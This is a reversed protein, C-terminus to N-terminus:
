GIPQCVVDKMLSMQLVTVIEVDHLFCAGSKFHRLLIAADVKKLVHGKITGSIIRTVEHQM